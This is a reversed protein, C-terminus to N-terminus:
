RKEMPGVFDDYTDARRITECEGDTRVLVVAPALGAYRAGRSLTYAGADGIALVDGARLEPMRRRMEVVDLTNLTPGSFHVVSTRGSRPELPVIPRTFALPSEVLVNRGCDLFRWSGQTAAVTTLLVAANGAISRGPELVLQIPGKAEQDFLARLATAYERLPTASRPADRRLLRGPTVRRLTGSPIGGGLNVERITRLRDALRILQRLPRRYAEVDEQQTGIYTNLADIVLGERPAADIHSPDFGLRRSAATLVFLGTRGLSVRLSVRLTAAARRAARSLLELDEARFAHIRRVGLAIVAGLERPDLVPRQFAIADPAFGAALALRVEAEHSALLHTGEERLIELVRLEPNTKACYRLTVGDGFGAVLDRVNGRLREESVVLVPTGASAAIDRLPVRQWHLDLAM